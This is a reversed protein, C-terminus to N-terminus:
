PEPVRLSIECVARVIARTISSEKAEVDMGAECLRLTIAAGEGHRDATVAFDFAEGILSFAAAQRSQRLVQEFTNEPLSPAFWSRLSVPALALLHYLRRLSASDDVEEFIAM